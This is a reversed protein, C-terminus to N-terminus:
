CLHLNWVEHRRNLKRSGIECWYVASVKDIAAVSIKHGQKKSALSLGTRQFSPSAFRKSGEKRGSALARRRLERDRADELGSRLIEKNGKLDM